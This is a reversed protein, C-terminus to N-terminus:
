KVKSLQLNALVYVKISQLLDAIPLREDAQHMRDPTHPYLMGFAVCNPIARAYTGGATAVMKNHNDKTVIRYALDLALIFPSDPNVYLSPVRKIADVSYHQFYKQIYGFFKKDIEEGKISEPWRINFVMHVEDSDSYLVGLNVLTRGTLEDVVNIGLNEGYYANHICNEVFRVYNPPDTLYRSLFNTAIAVANSGKQPECAHSAKGYFTLQCQHGKNDLKKFDGLIHKQNCYRQFRNELDDINAVVVDCKSPVMNAALGGNISILQPHKELPMSIEYVAIENECFVVPFMGDPSYSYKPVEYRDLYYKMGACTREEDGGVILRLRRNNLPLKLARITKMAWYAAMVPGKDDQAGRGHLYKEDDIFASLPGHEWESADFPVTDCHGVAAIMDKGIGMEASMAYGNYEEVNFNDKKALNAIYKMSNAVKTGFPAGDSITKQDYVSDIKLWNQLDSVIEAQNKDIFASVKKLLYDIKEM